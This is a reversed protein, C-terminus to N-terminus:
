EACSAAYQGNEQVEGITWVPKSFDVTLNVTQVGDWNFILCEGSLDTPVLATWTGDENKTM